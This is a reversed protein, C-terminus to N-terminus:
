LLITSCIRKSWKDLPIPYFGLSLNLETVSKFKELKQLTENIRPLPFSNVEVWKNLDRFCTIIRIDSTKKNPIGFAPLAWFSTECWLLEKLVRIDIM